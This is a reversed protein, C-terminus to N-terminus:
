CSISCLSGSSISSSSGLVCLSSAIIGQSLSFCCLSCSFSCLSSSCLCLLSSDFFCGLLNFFQLVLYVSGETLLQVNSDEILCYSLKFTCNGTDILSKILQTVVNLLILIIDLSGLLSNSSQCSGLLICSVLNSSQLSILLSEFALCNRTKILCDLSVTNLNVAYLLANLIQLLSGLISLLLKRIFNSCNRSVQGSQLCGNVTNILGVLLSICIQLLLNFIEQVSNICILVFCSRSNIQCNLIDM